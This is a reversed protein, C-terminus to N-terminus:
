GKDKVQAEIAANAMNADRLLVVVRCDANVVIKGEEIVSVVQPTHMHGHVHLRASSKMFLQFVEKADDGCVLDEQGPLCPNSHTMLIDM